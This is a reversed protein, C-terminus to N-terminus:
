IEYILHKRSIIKITDLFDVLKAPKAFVATAGEDYCERPTRIKNLIAGSHVIVDAKYFKKIKRTLELGDEGPHNIDTIVVDINENELYELANVNTAAFYTQYGNDVLFESIAKRTSKDDDVILIKPPKEKTDAM